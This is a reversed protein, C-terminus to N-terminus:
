IPCEHDSGDLRRNSEDGAQWRLSVSAGHLLERARAPFSAQSPPESMADSGLAIMDALATKGSGRAGIIAVLGPNLGLKPTRAWPAGAVEVTAIVQSSAASVPLDVGVFARGAPDICAQRLADFEIAGKIWSYRDGDPIGVTRVEHADSGHLCPKLGNYRSRLEAESANRRGLWFERQAASSAFIVHAFKEVEQRLTADAADRVGSTGDTESGAVAILINQQAWASKTYAQRLEDFSVKFQESGHELAAIPDTLKSDCRRGLRILDDKHSSPEYNM